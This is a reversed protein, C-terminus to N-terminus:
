NRGLIKRNDHRVLETRLHKDVSALKLPLCHSLIARDLPDLLKPAEQRFISDSGVGSIYHRLIDTVLHVFDMRLLLLNYRYIIKHM